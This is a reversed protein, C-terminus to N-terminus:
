NLSAKTSIPKYLLSCAAKCLFIKDFTRKLEVTLQCNLSSSVKQFSKGYFTNKVHM